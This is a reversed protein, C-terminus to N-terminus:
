INAEEGMNYGNVKTLVVINIRNMYFTVATSSGPTNLTLIDLSIMALM